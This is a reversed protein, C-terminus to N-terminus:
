DLKATPDPDYFNAQTIPEIDPCLLTLPAISNFFEWTMCEGMYFVFDPNMKKETPSCFSKFVRLHKYTKPRNM